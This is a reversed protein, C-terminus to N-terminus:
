KVRHLVIPQAPGRGGGGGGRGGGGPGRGGGGDAGAPPAGGGPAGGGAGAGGRGGGGGGGGRAAFVRSLVSITNDDTMEINWTVGRPQTVLTITKGSITGTEITLPDGNGIENVTGSVQDGSVKFDMIIAKGGGGGRGGRAGPEAPPAAAAAKQADLAAQVNDTQWKGALGAQGYVVASVVLIAAIVLLVKLKM